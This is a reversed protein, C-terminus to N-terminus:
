RDLSLDRHQIRVEATGRVTILRSLSLKMTTLSCYPLCGSLSSQTTSAPTEGGALVGMMSTLATPQGM